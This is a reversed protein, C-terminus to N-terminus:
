QTFDLHIPMLFLMLSAADAGREGKNKDPNMEISQM